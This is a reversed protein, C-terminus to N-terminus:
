NFFATCAQAVTACQVLRGTGARAAWESKGRPRPVVIREFGLQQLEKIRTSMNNVPRIEGGLGCEGIFATSATLPRNLHSSVLAALIGLDIAPEGITLGGAVNFFIDQEGLTVGGYRELVAILLSLRKPNIGSAVRQPIGFHTLSVLAQLEVVLVRSGELVPVVATGIQAITGNHLFIESSNNVEALGKDSMSFLGIEGSPGFRNKVSRLIRYQYNSDGEFYLVTDVMHELLRPGALAGDKTVHGVILVATRGSKACRLLEATSERVQAVSGPASQIEPCMMTQISDVVVVAPKVRDIHACVAEISTESLFTVQDGAAGTRRARLSVQEYSEEGSVYLVTTGPRAWAEMLQLLLTSKGIGPDGGILVLSGPVLGGGLVRDFQVFPSCIRNAAEQPADGLSRPESSGSTSSLRLSGRAVTKPQRFEVVSEWAGCNHCRGQWKGFEQGCENCVFATKIKRNM